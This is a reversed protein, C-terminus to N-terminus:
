SEPSTVHQMFVSFFLKKERRHGIIGRPYKQQNTNTNTNRKESFAWVDRTETWEDSYQGSRWCTLIGEM